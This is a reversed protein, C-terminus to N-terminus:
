TCMLACHLRSSLARAAKTLIAVDGSSSTLIDNLWTPQLLSAPNPMVISAPRKQLVSILRCTSSQENRFSKARSAGLRSRSCMEPAQLRLRNLRFQGARLSSDRSRMGVDRGQTMELSSVPSRVVRSFKPNESSARATM